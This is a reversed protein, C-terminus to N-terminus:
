LNAREVYGLDIRISTPSRIMIRVSDFGHGGCGETSRIELIM